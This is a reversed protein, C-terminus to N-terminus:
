YDNEVAKQKTLLNLRSQKAGISGQVASLKEHKQQWKGLKNYITTRLIPLKDIEGVM